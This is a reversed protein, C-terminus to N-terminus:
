NTLFSSDDNERPNQATENTENSAAQGSQGLPSDVEPEREEVEEYSSFNGRKGPPKDVPPTGSYNTNRTRPRRQSPTKNEM